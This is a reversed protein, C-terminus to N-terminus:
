HTLRLRPGPDIFDPNFTSHTFDDGNASVYAWERIAPEGALDPRLAIVEKQSLHGYDSSMLSMGMTILGQSANIRELAKNSLPVSIWVGCSALKHNCDRATSSAAFPSPHVKFALDVFENNVEVVGYPEGDGLDSNIFPDVSHDMRDQPEANMITAADFRDVPFVGLWESRDPSHYFSYGNMYFTKKRVFFELAVRKARTVKSVDFVIYGNTVKAGDGYGAEPFMRVVGVLMRQHAGRGNEYKASLSMGNVRDIGSAFYGWDTSPLVSPDPGPPLYGPHGEAPSADEPNFVKPNKGPHPLAGADPHPDPIPRGPHLVKVLDGEPKPAPDPNSEPISGTPVLDGTGTNKSESASGTSHVDSRTTVSQGTELGLEGPASSLEPFWIDTDDAEVESQPSSSSNKACATFFCLVGVGCVRMWRREILEAM